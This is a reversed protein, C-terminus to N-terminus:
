EDKKVTKSKTVNLGQLLVTTVFFDYAQSISLVAEYLERLEASSLNWKLRNALIRSFLYIRIRNNLIAFSLIKCMKDVHYQSESIISTISTGDIEKFGNVSSIKLMTGLKLPKLKYDGVGKITFEVVPENLITKAAKSQVEQENLAKEEM